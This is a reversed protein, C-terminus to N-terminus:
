SSSRWLSLQFSRFCVKCLGPLETGAVFCRWQKTPSQDYAHGSQGPYAKQLLRVCQILLHHCGLISVLKLRLSSIKWSFLCFALFSILCIFLTQPCFHYFHSDRCQACSWAPCRQAIVFPKTRPSFFRHPLVAESWNSRTIWGLVSHQKLSSCKLGKRYNKSKHNLEYNLFANWPLPTLLSMKQFTLTFQRLTKPM